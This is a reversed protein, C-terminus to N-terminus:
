QDLYGAANLLEATLVAGGAAGRLTNHSLAAFKWGDTASDPRLRGVCTAMGREVDRDLRTQPRDEQSFYVVDSRPASPLGMKTLPSPPGQTWRAIIDNRSPPRQFHVWVAAMHGDSVPVRFCQSTILPEDDPSPVIRRGEIRGWIKHPEQVTKEEEGSIFPIVNDEMEPWTAFTKGAGSIAQYTAVMVLTPKFEALRHLPPVFTQLSCNPKVVICGRATGLRRRQDRIIQLHGFNVEPILMPVDPTWRHASNASVVVVERTAYAAELTAVEERKMDVACFALDLQAAIAEMDAIADRVTLNGVTAPVKIPTLGRTAMVEHYPKGASRESAALLVIEFWPHDLLLQVFRQGVMGTAGIVGVRLKAM